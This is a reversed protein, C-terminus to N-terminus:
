RVWNTHTRDIACKLNSVSLVCKLNSVNLFDVGLLCCSWFLCSERRIGFGHDSSKNCLLPGCRRGCILARAWRHFVCCVRRIGLEEECMSHMWAWNRQASVVWSLAVRQYFRTAKSWGILWCPSRSTKCHIFVRSSPAQLSGCQCDGQPRQSSWRGLMAPHDIPLGSSKGQLYIQVLFFHYMPLCLSAVFWVILHSLVTQVTFMFILTEFELWYIDISGDRDFLTYVIWACILVCDHWDEFVVFVIRACVNDTCVGWVVVMFYCLAVVDSSFVCVCTLGFFM